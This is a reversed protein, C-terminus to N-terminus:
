HSEFVMEVDVEVEVPDGDLRTPEFRWQKVAEMVARGLVPDGEMLKAEQINGDRSLELRVTVKGQLHKKLAEEPFRPNVEKFLKSRMVNMDLRIRIPREKPLKSLVDGPIFRFGGQHYVFYGPLDGATQNRSEGPKLLMYLRPSDGQFATTYLPVIQNMCNLFHDPAHEEEPDAYRFIKPTMWGRQVSGEYITRIEQELGPLARQYAAALSTGFGPGYEETFWTSNEPMLLSHILEAEKAPDKAKAAHLIDMILNQLGDSTNPYTPASDQSATKEQPGKGETPLVTLGLLLLLPGLTRSNM